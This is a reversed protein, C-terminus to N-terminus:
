KPNSIYFNKMYNEKPNFYQIFYFKSSAIKKTSTLVRLRTLENGNGNREDEIKAINTCRKLTSRHKAMSFTTRLVKELHFLM